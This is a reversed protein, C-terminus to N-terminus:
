VIPRHLRVRVIQILLIANLLEWKHIAAIPLADTTLSGRYGKADGSARLFFINTNEMIERCQWHVLPSFEERRFVYCCKHHRCTTLEITAPSCLLSLADFGFAPRQKLIWFSAKDYSRAFGRLQSIPLKFWWMAKFNSLCRPLATESTGVFKLAIWCNFYFDRPRSVQRFRVILCRLPYQFM